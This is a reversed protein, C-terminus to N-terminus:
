GFHSFVGVRQTGGGQKKTLTRVDLDYVASGDDGLVILRDPFFSVRLPGDGGKAEQGDYPGGELPIVPLGVGSM